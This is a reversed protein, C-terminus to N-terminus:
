EIYKEIRSKPPQMGGHQIYYHQNYMKGGNGM